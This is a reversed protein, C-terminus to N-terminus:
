NRNIRKAGGKMGPVHHFLRTSEGLWLMLIVNQILNARHYEERVRLAWSFIFRPRRGGYTERERERERELMLYSLSKFATCTSTHTRATHTRAIHTHATHTCKMCAPRTDYPYSQCSSPSGRKRESRLMFGEQKLGVRVTKTEVYIM